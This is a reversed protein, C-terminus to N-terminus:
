YHYKNARHTINVFKHFANPVTFTKEDPIPRDFPFGLPRTDLYRRGSGIGCKAIPDGNPPEFGEYPSVIFYLQFVTGTPSTKPFLLRQPLGCFAERNHIELNFEQEFLEKLHESFTAFSSRQSIFGNFESSLRYISNLGHDLDVKFKDIEFFLQRNENWSFSKSLSQQAPGLFVRLIGETAIRSHIFIKYGFHDHNLAKTKVLVIKKDKKYVFDNRSKSVQDESIRGGNKEKWVANTIDVNLESFFTEIRSIEVEKIAVGQFKLHRKSYPQLNSQFKEQFNVIRMIIQFYVPDRLQTEAHHLSNTLIFGNESHSHGGYISKLSNLYDAVQVRDPSNLNGDILNGLENISMENRFNITTGNRTRMQGYELFSDLKEEMQIINEIERERTFPYYYPLRDVIKQGNAHSMMPFHAAKIPELVDLDEVKTLNNGIRELNYRALLQQHEFLFLEGRRDATLGDTKLWQPYSLQYYFYFSNLDLDNRFYSLKIEETHDLHLDTRHDDDISITLLDNNYLNEAMLRQAKEIIEGSFFLFPNVEFPAPFIMELGGNIFFCLTSYTFVHENIHYRMWTAVRFVDAAEKVSSYVQFVVTAEHQHTKELLTFPEGKQLLGVNDKLDKFEEVAQVNGYLKPNYVNFGAAFDKLQMDWEPNFINRFLVFVDEQRDFEVSVSSVFNKNEATHQLFASETLTMSCVLTLLAIELKM